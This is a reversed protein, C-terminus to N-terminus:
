GLNHLNVSFNRFSYWLCFWLIVIVILTLLIGYSIWRSQKWYAVTFFILICIAGIIMSLDLALSHVSSDIVDTAFFVIAFFLASVLFGILVRM